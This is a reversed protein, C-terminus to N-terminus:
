IFTEPEKRASFNKRFSREAVFLMLGNLKRAHAPCVKMCRMCSICAASDTTQPAAAPIAGVPCSAACAGCATCRKTAKPKLPIGGYERYPKNGPLTLASFASLDAADQVKNWAAKGFAAIKENDSADPRGPAVSHMISHETVFAGAAVTVFGSAETLTQLELLADEFARNGYTVVLVAPTHDGRLHKIREAMPAPVRGGYVPLGFFVLEGSSFDLANDRESFKTLDIAASQPCLAATMTELVSKTSDTPSFFVTSLKSINM